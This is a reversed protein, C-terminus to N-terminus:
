EPRRMKISRLARRGQWLALGLVSWLILSKARKAKNLLVTRAPAALLVSFLIGLIPHRGLYDGLWSAPQMPGRLLWRGFINLSTFKAGLEARAQAFQARELIARDLLQEKRIAFSNRRASFRPCDIQQGM